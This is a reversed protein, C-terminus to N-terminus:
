GLRLLAAAVRSAGGGDQQDWCRQAMALRESPDQLLQRLQSVAGDDRLDQLSGLHLAMRESQWAAAPFQQNDAICTIVTPVGLCALEHLTTGGACLALQCTAMLSAPHWNDVHLEIQSSQDALDKLRPLNPNLSTTLLIRKGGFEARDLGNLAAVAGGRDDGGGFTILVSRVETDAPRSLLLRQERFEEAVLAYAPGALFEPVSHSLRESYASPSAGPNADHVWRGLLQHRHLLNGFQMWKLGAQNLVEQYGVEGVRYHDVVGTQLHHDLCLRATLDADEGASLEWPISHIVAGSPFDQTQLDLNESRILFHSVAGAEACAHALVVCRRLHGLGIRPSADLRFFLPSMDSSTETIM